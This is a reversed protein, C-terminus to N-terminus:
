FVFVCLLRINGRFAASKFREQVISAIPKEKTGINGSTERSEDSFRAASKQLRWRSEPILPIM